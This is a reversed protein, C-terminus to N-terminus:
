RRSRPVRAASRGPPDPTPAVALRGGSTPAPRRQASTRRRGSGPRWAQTRSSSSWRVPRAVKKTQPSRACRWGSSSRRMASEPCESCGWQQSCTECQVSSIASPRQRPMSRVIAGAPRSRLVRPGVSHRGGYPRVQAAHGRRDGRLAASASAPQVILGCSWAWDASRGSVARRRASASRCSRGCPAGGCSPWRSGPRQLPARIGAIRDLEQPRQEVLLLEAEGRQASPELGRQLIPGRAGDLTPPRTWRRRLWRHTRRASRQGERDTEIEAPTATPTSVRREPCPWRCRGNSAETVRAARPENGWEGDTCQHARAQARGGAATRGARQLHDSSRWPARGRIHRTSREPRTRSRARRRRCAATRSRRAGRAPGARSPKAAETAGRQRRREGGLTLRHLVVLEVLAQGRQPTM